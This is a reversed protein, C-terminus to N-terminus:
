VHARGIEGLVVRPRDYAKTGLAELAKYDSAIKSFLDAAEKEKGVLIGVLKIWEARGLASDELYEAMFIVPIGQSRLFGADKKEQDGYLYTLFGDPALSIIAERDLARAMTGKGAVEPIEPTKGEEFYLYEGGALGVVKEMSDLAQLCAVAPTSGVILRELPVEISPVGPLVETKEGKPVLAARYPESSGYYAQDVTVLRYNGIQEIHLNSAYDMSHASSSFVALIGLVLFIKRPM